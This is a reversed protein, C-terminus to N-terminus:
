QTLSIQKQKNQQLNDAKPRYKGVIIVLVGKIEIRRIGPCRRNQRSALFYSGIM